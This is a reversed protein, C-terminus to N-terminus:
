MHCIHLCMHTYLTFPATSYSALMYLFIRAPSAKAFRDFQLENTLFKNLQIEISEITFLFKMSCCILM